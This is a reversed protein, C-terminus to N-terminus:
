NDRNLLDHLMLTHKSIKVPETPFKYNKHVLERGEGNTTKEAAESTIIGLEVMEIPKPSQTPVEEFKQQGRTATTTTPKILALVSSFKPMFIRCFICVGLATLSAITAFSFAFLNLKFHINADSLNVHDLLQRGSLNRMDVLETLNSMMVGLIVPYSESRMYERTEIILGSCPYVVKTPTITVHTGNITANTNRRILVMDHGYYNDVLQNSDLVCKSPSLQNCHYTSLLECHPGRFRSDKDVLRMEPLLPQIPLIRHLVVRNVSTPIIYVFYITSDMQKSEMVVRVSGYQVLELINLKTRNYIESIERQSFVMPMITNSKSFSIALEIIMLYSELAQINAMNITFLEQDHATEEQAQFQIFADNMFSEVKKDFVFQKNSENVLSNLTRNIIRLDNADPSGSLWKWVQGLTEWRKKRSHSHFANGVLPPPTRIKKFAQPNRKWKPTMTPVGILEGFRDSLKSLQFLNLNKLISKEPLKDIMKLSDYIERVGVVHVVTLNGNSEVCSSEPHLLYLMDASVNETRCDPDRDLVRNTIILGRSPLTIAALLLCTAYITIKQPLLLDFDILTM